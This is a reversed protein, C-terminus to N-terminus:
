KGEEEKDVMGKLLEHATHLWDIRDVADTRSVRGEAIWRPFCRLRVQLERFLEDVAARPAALKPKIEDTATTTSMNPIWLPRFNVTWIWCGSATELTLERQRTTAGTWM